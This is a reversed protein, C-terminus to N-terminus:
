SSYHLPNFSALTIVPNLRFPYIIVAVATDILITYPSEVEVPIVRLVPSRFPM